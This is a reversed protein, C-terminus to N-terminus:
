IYKRQEVALADAKKPFFSLIVVVALVSLIALVVVYQHTGVPVTKWGPSMAFLGGVVPALAAGLVQPTGTAIHISIFILACTIAFASMLHWQWVPKASSRKKAM